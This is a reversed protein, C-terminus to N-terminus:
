CQIFEMGFVYPYREGLFDGSLKGSSNPKHPPTAHTIEHMEGRSNLVKVPLKVPKQTDQYVLKWTM